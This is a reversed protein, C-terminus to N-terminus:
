PNDSSWGLYSRRNIKIQPINLFQKKAITSEEGVHTILSPLYGIVALNLSELSKGINTDLLKSDHPLHELKSIIVDVFQGNFILFLAGCLGPKQRKIIRWGLTYRNGYPFACYPSLLGVEPHGRFYTLANNVHFSTIPDAEFDDECIIYWNHTYSERLYKLAFIFNDYLGLKTEHVIWSCNWFDIVKTEPEACITIHQQFGAERLSAITGCLYNMKRPCTRIIFPTGRSPM